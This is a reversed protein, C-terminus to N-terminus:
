ASAWSPLLAAARTQTCALLIALLNIGILAPRVGRFYPVVAFPEDEADAFAPSSSSFALCLLQLAASTEPGTAGSLSM